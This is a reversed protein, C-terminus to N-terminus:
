DAVLCSPTLMYLHTANSLLMGAAATDTPRQTTHQVLLAACQRKPMIMAHCTTHGQAQSRDQTSIESSSSNQARLSCVWAVM